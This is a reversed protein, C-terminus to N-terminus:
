DNGLKVKWGNRKVYGNKYTKVILMSHKISQEIKDISPFFEKDTSQPIYNLLTKKTKALKKPDYNPNGGFQAEFLYSYEDILEYRKKYRRNFDYDSQDSLAKGTKCSRNGTM